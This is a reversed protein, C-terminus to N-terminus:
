QKIKKGSIGKFRGEGMFNKSDFHFTIEWDSLNNRWWDQTRCHWMPQHYEIGHMENFYFISGPPAVENMSKLIIEVIEDELHSLVIFTTFFTKDDLELNIIEDEAFGNIYNIENKTNYIKKSIEIAHSSPEIAFIKKFNKNKRIYNVFWGTGSGIDVLCRIEPNEDMIFGHKDDDSYLNNWISDNGKKSDRTKWEHKEKEIDFANTQSYGEDHIDKSNHKM